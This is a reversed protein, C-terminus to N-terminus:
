REGALRRAQVEGLARSGSLVAVAGVVGVVPLTQFLNWSTYYLLFIGELAVVSGFFSAHSVPAAALAKSLHSVNAGLVLWGVFLAPLAAAVLLVFCLSIPKPPSQPDARFIHHIEPLKGFREPAEYVLPAASADVQLQLDFVPAAYGQASGFSGIVISARLPQKALVLQVPIDKQAIQVTGKGSEKVTLPFPAELGSEVDQLLLFAQHPRKAKGSDKATLSIKAVGDSGLRIASALPNRANLKEQVTDSSGKAKVSISAEDFSWSSAAQAVGAAVLLLSSAFASHLRM